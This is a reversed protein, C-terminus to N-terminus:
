KLHINGSSDVQINTCTNNYFAVIKPDKMDGPKFDLSIMSSIGDGLWGSLKGITFGILKGYASPAESKLDKVEMVIQGNECNCVLDFDVDVEPNNLDVSGIDINYDLDLDISLTNDTKYKAEVYRNGSLDGWELKTNTNNHGVAAEIMQEITKRSIMTVPKALSSKNANKWYSSNRLESGQIVIKDPHGDNKDIWTCTGYSKDFMVEGNVILEIQQLCWGDTDETAIELYQIDKITKINPSLNYYTDTKGKERDNGGNDYYYIGDKGNLRAYIRADTEADKVTGTKTRIQLSYIPIEELDIKQVVSELTYGGNDPTSTQSPMPSISKIKVSVKNFYVDMYVDDSTCNGVDNGNTDGMIEFIRVLNGGKIDPHDIDHDTDTYSVKSEASSLIDTIVFGSPATWITETWTQRAETWDSKTEKAHLYLVAEVRKKDNSLQLRAFANVNPGNGGFERDGGVHKPCLHPIAYPTFTEIREIYASTPKPTSNSSQNANGWRTKPRSTIESNNQRTSSKEKGHKNNQYKLTQNNNIQNSSNIRLIKISSIKDNFGLNNLNPVDETLIIQKGKFNDGDYAYVQWGRPIQISSIQDNASVQQWPSPTKFKGMKAYEGAPLDIKHGQYNSDAYCTVQAMCTNFYMSVALFTILFSKFFQSQKM